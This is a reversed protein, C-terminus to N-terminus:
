KYKKYLTYSSYVALGVVLLIIGLTNRTRITDREDILTYTFKNGYRSGSIRALRMMEYFDANDQFVQCGASDKGILTKDSKSATSKHINIGFFGSQEANLFNTFGDRDNDRIVTVKKLRQCIAEYKKKHYDIKYTDVYQGGKLIGAGGSGMPNKLYTTSPDTTGVCIKGQLKGNDDYYFFAILDDYRDQNVPSSNRIGVINLHFPQTYVIYGKKKMTAVIDQLTLKKM